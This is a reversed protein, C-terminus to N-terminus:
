VRAGPRPLRAGKVRSARVQQRRLEASVDPSLRQGRGAAAQRVAERAEESLEGAGTGTDGAPQATPRGAPRQRRSAAALIGRGVARLPQGRLGAYLALGSGAMIVGGLAVQGSGVLAGVLQQEAATISQGIPALAGEIAGSVDPAQLGPAQQQYANYGPSGPGSRSTAVDAAGVAGAQGAPDLLWATPDFDTGYRGGKPRTEFHIHCGTSNGTNNSVALPQGGRVVGPQVLRAALHGLWVDVGGITVVLATGYGGPNNVHRVTASHIAEPLVITTGCPAAVDAGAHWHHYGHGEPEGDYTSPGWGQTVEFTGVWWGSETHQGVVSQGVLSTTM